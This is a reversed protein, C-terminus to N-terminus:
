LIKTEYEYFKRRICYTFSQLLYKCSVTPERPFTPGGNDLPRTAPNSYYPTTGNNVATVPSREINIPVFPETSRPTSVAPTRDINVPIFTDTSRSNSVTPTREVNLPIFTDTSRPNSVSPNRDINVPIVNDTSRPNSVTPTRDINVPINYARNRFSPVRNFGTDNFMSGGLRDDRLRRYDSYSPPNFRRNPSWTEYTM